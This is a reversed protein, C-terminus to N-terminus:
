DLVSELGKTNIYIAILFCLLISKQAAVQMMLASINEKADPGFESFIIYSFILIAFILFGLVYKNDILDTKLIIITYCTGAIFFFRFLWHAFVLHEPFYLDSPTLGVGVMSYGGAIGTITGIISLWYLFGRRLNFITRLNIFFMSLVIGTIMMSSNFLLSSFFNHRIIPIPIYKLGNMEIIDANASWSLFRGLDSLFNNFFSYGVTEANHLTGGPYIFMALINLLVFGIITLQPMQVLWLKKNM